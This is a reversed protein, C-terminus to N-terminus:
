HIIGRSASYLQFRCIHSGDLCCQASKDSVLFLEAHCLMAYCVVCKFTVFDLIPIQCGTGM